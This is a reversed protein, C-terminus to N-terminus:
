QNTFSDLLPTLPLTLAMLRHGDGHDKNIADQVIPRWQKLRDGDADSFGLDFVTPCHACQFEEHQTFTDSLVPIPTATPIALHERKILSVAM